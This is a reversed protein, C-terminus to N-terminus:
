YAGRRQLVVRSTRWLIRLDGTFSWNEVYYLDLRVSDEWSLDSRGSIQWLGTLGPKVLLRRHVDEDYTAVESALPPRPGVLSMDLRIVNWLQPLEDLSYRRLTKGIRTVRPDDRLKFLPGAGENVDEDFAVQDAGVVMSRFKHMVFRRGGIGVRNQSYVIPGHDELWVLLSITLFLPQLIIFLTLAAAVDFATKALRRPGTFTPGEVYLLPLGAVPRSHIRPGAVDVLGPSVVLDIGTGELAWGLKRLGDTGHRWSAVSAVVDVRMRQAVTAADEEAGVVDVGDIQAIPDSCCAGVVAFGADSAARLDRILATLHSADGVVLVRDAFEGHSRRAGLWTRWLRRTVLLALLGVPFAILVYGRALEIKSLYSVIALTAFLRWTGTVVARYEQPGHGFMRADYVNHLRLVWLWLVVVAASVWSYELELSSTTSAAQGLIPLSSFRLIHAGIVAWIVVLADTIAIWRAVRLVGARGNTLQLAPDNRIVM